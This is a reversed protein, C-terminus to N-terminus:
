YGFCATNKEGTIVAWYNSSVRNFLLLGSNFQSRVWSIGRLLGIALPIERDSIYLIGVMYKYYNNVASVPQIKKVLLKLVTIVQCETLCCYAQTINHCYV